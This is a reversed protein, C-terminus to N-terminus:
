DVQCEKGAQPELTVLKTLRKVILHTGTISTGKLFTAKGNPHLLAADLDNPVGRWGSQGIAGVKDVKRRDLNFRYYKSGLFFYIKGNAHPIAAEARVPVGAWGDHGIVGIKEVSETDYNRKYYQNGLFFYARGNPHSTVCDYTSGHAADDDGHRRRYRVYLRIYRETTVKEHRFALPNWIRHYVSWYADGAQIELNGPGFLVRGKNELVSKLLDRGVKAALDELRDSLYSAACGFYTCAALAAFDGPGYSESWLTEDWGTEIDNKMNRFTSPM